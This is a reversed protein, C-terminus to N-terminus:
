LERHVAEMSDISLTNTASQEPFNDGYVQRGLEIALKNSMLRFVPVLQSEFGKLGLSTHNAMAQGILYAGLETCTLDRPNTDFGMVERIDDFSRIDIGLADSLNMIQQALVEGSTLQQRTLTYDGGYYSGRMQTDPAAGTGPATFKLWVDSRTANGSAIRMFEYLTHCEALASTTM